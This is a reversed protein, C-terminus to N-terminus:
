RNVLSAYFSVPFGSIRGAIMMDNAYECIEHAHDKATEISAHTEDDGAKKFCKAIDGLLLNYRTVRQVPTMLLVSLARNFDLAM